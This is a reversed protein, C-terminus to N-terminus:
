VNYIVKNKSKVIGKIEFDVLDKNFFRAQEISKFELDVVKGKPISRATIKLMDKTM